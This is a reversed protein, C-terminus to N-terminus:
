NKKTFAAIIVIRQGNVRGEIHLPNESLGINRVPTGRKATFNAGKVDLDKIITVSDGAELIAGNADLTVQQAMLPAKHAWELLADDLYLIDLSDQAWAQESYQKLLRYSLVQVAPIPSWMSQSLCGFHEASAAVGNVLHDHCISCLLVASNLSSDPSGDLLYAQLNETKSCLECVSDARKKM